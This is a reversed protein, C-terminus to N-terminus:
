MKLTKHHTEEQNANIQIYIMRLDGASDLLVEEGGPHQDMFKSVDYVKNKIVMWADGHKKHKSVEELTYTTTMRLFQIPHLDISSNFIDGFLLPHFKFLGLIGLDTFPNRHCNKELTM